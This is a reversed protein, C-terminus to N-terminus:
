YHLGSELETLAASYDRATELLAAEARDVAEACEEMRLIYQAHFADAAPGTWRASAREWSQRFREAAGSM